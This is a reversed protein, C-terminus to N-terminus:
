FEEASTGGDRPWYGIVVTELDVLDGLLERFRDLREIKRSSVRVFPRSTGDWSVVNTGVASVFVCETRFAEESLRLRIQKELEDRYLVSFGFFEITPM